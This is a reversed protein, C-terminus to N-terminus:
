SIMSVRKMFKGYDINREGMTNTFSGFYSILDSKNREDMYKVTYVGIGVGMCFLLLVLLYYIKHGRFIEKLKELFNKM